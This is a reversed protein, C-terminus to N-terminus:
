LEINWWDDKEIVTPMSNIKIGITKDTKINISDKYVKLEFKTNRFTFKCAVSIWHKPLKPTINISYDRFDVGAFGTICQYITGAM